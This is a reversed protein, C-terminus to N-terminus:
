QLGVKLDKSEIERPWEATVSYDPRTFSFYASVYAVYRANQVFRTEAEEHQQSHPRSFKAAESEVVVVEIDSCYM